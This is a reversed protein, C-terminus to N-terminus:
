RILDVFTSDESKQVSSVARWRDMELKKVLEKVKNRSNSIEMMQALEAVKTRDITLKKGTSDFEVLLGRNRRQHSMLTAFVIRNKTSDIELLHFQDNTASVTPFRKIVVIKNKKTIRLIEQVSASIPERLDKTKVNTRLLEAVKHTLENNVDALRAEIPRQQKVTEQTVM